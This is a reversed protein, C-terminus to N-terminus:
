FIASLDALPPLMADRENAAIEDAPLGWNIGLAPDNWRVGGEDKASYFDSVKYLVETDPELTVYGHAFGKPVFIQLRNEASLLASVWRGYTPSARRIDVAVDVISGRLVRVLKDQATPPKQFHLGRMTGRKHSLVQNDQVLAVGGLMEALARNSFTESFAGRADEFLRPTYTWVDPIALREIM